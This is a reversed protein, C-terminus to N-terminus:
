RHHKFPGTIAFVYGPTAPDAGEDPGASGEGESASPNSGDGQINAFLIRRDPSFNPGTFESQAATENRAFFFAEGRDTAGVLHQAGEGDEAIMVGGFPSVTINDPGDPDSDQDDRTYAFRLTLEITMRKADLFWVQGDHAVASEEDADDAATRAFSATFYAGGDAWWMGELKQSRTVQGEGFQARTSTERADRDPVEVWEVAYTTGIEEAVSLDPVYRGRDFAKMAELTGADDALDRLRDKGPRFDKPPTWRYLLGYPDSADETLYFHGRRPDVVVAEHPYRGLAKIPKPDRNLDKDYPDVEFVYGHDLTLAGYTGEDGARDETEECTLWTDWPTAGGACNNVTGALSVYETVRNGDRDVVVNTTGGGAGKDYVLGDILPVPNEEDSGVEHNTVLVAGGRRLPFSASGDPDAPTPSGDEMITVGTEAIITYSFGAPLALIGAPDPVLPGYGLQGDGGGRGNGPGGGDAAATGAGFLTDVSGVLAIGLGGVAGRELFRRRSVGSTEPLQPTTTM